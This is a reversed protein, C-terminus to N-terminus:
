WQVMGAETAINAYYQKDMLEGPLMKLWVLMKEKLYASSVTVMCVGWTLRRVKHRGQILTSKTFNDWPIGSSKAWFARTLKEDHDPYILVHGRVKEMPIGCTQTLFSVYFKILAPESNSLMLNHRSAKNGEGWYLMVGAIFMPNYKLTELEERAEERAEEYVRKLHAGRIKDLEIIRATSAIQVEKRLREAIAKSWEQSSFWESLTSLPIRLERRIEKYSKGAKRMKIANEKDKRM